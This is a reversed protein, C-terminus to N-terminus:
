VYEYRSLLIEYCIADTYQIRKLHQKEIAM